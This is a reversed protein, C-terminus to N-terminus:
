LKLYVSLKAELVGLFMTDSLHDAGPHLTDHMRYASLLSSVQKLVFNEKCVLVAEVKKTPGTVKKKRGKESQKKQCSFCLGEEV